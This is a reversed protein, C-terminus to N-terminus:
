EKYIKVFKEKEIDWIYKTKIRKCNQKFKQYTQTDEILYNVSNAIETVSINEICYGVNNPGVIKKMEPLSSCIVPVEMMIYELLKNSLASYHNFCTNELVQFGLYAHQTYYLLDEAPVKDVFRVKDEIGNQIVRKKLNSKLPGDGIIVLVGKSFLPVADIIKEIGRGVQLGGQYLLLPVNKQIGLLKYLDNRERDKERYIPYNHIVFPKDINYLESIYNARTETTMIMYDIKYVLYKELIYKVKGKGGARSTEVEHSDYILKARKNFLRCLYGQVLTKLDNCHYIHYPQRLGYRIMNFVVMGSNILKGVKIWELVRMVILVIKSIGISPHKAKLNLRLLISKFNDVRIVRAGEFYEEGFINQEDGDYTCIVTVEHGEERLAKVERRVRADNVFNNWLFVAIKKM